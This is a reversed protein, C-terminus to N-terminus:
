KKVRYQSLISKIEAARRKPPLKTVEEDPLAGAEVARELPPVLRAVRTRLFQNVSVGPLGRRNVGLLWRWGTIRSVNCLNAVDTPNLGARKFLQHPFQM